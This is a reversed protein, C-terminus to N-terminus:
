AKDGENMTVVLKGSAKRSALLGLAEGGRELPFRQSVRPRIRGQSYLNLLERHSADFKARERAIFEGSGVGRVDCGKLLVLNLPLKPIGAAFGVVLYRGQWAIARLCPEAYEGGVVDLVVDAGNPGVAEKLSQTFVRATDKDMGGALYVVGTSAGHRLALELKEQTSVAAVVRAGLVRGLEVAALGVGGAAGTVLLTEGPQLQGRERLAYLATGHSFLLAAAEDMPMAAPIPVCRDADIVLQEALGGWFCWGIVPDGVNLGTVGEGLSDVVGAVEGGPAFPRPPRMQYKDNIILTDPLGLACAKVRLRVQGPGPEPVAVDELVLTDAGGPVKSLLAKV